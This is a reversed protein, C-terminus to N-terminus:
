QAQGSMKVSATRRHLRGDAILADFAEKDISAANSTDDQAYLASVPAISLAAALLIGLGKRFRAMVKEKGNITYNPMLFGGENGFLHNFKHIM